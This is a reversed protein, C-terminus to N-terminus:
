AIPHLVKGESRRTLVLVSRGELDIVQHTRTRQRGVPAPVDAAAPPEGTRARLALARVKSALESREEFFVHPNRSSIPKLRAIAEALKDLEGALDHDIV